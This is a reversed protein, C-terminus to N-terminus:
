KFIIKIMEGCTCKTNITSGNSSVKLDKKLHVFGQEDTEFIFKNCKSCHNRAKKMKNRQLIILM